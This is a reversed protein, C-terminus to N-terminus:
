RHATLRRVMEVASAPANKVAQSLAAPEHRAEQLLKNLHAEREFAWRDFFQELDQRTFRSLPDDLGSQAVAWDLLGSGSRDFRYLGLMMSLRKALSNFPDRLDQPLSIMQEKIKREAVGNLWGGEGIKDWAAVNASEGNLYPDVNGDVKELEAQDSILNKMGANPFRISLRLTRHSGGAGGSAGGAGGGVGGGSSPRASSSRASPPRGFPSLGASSPGVSSPKIAADEVKTITGVGWEPRRLHRVRDGYAFQQDSMMFEMVHM